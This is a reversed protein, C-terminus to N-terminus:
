CCKAGPKSYRAEFRERFFEDRGLVRCSPHADRMHEVYREYDPAGLIARMARAISSMAEILEPM